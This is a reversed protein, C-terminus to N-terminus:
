FRYFQVKKFKNEFDKLLMKRLVPDLQKTQIKTFYTQGLQKIVSNSTNWNFMPIELTTTPIENQNLFIGASETNILHSIKNARFYQYSLNNCKQTWGVQPLSDSFGYKLNLDHALRESNKIIESNKNKDEYIYCYFQSAFPDNHLMLFNVGHISRLYNFIESARKQSPITLNNEVDSSYSFEVQNELEPLCFRSLYSYFNEQISFRNVENVPPDINWIISHLTEGLENILYDVFLVGMPENPHPCLGIVINGNVNIKTVELSGIAPWLPRGFQIAVM